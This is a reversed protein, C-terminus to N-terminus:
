GGYWGVREFCEYAIGDENFRIGFYEEPDTGLFGVRSEKTVYYGAYLEGKINYQTRDFEGYKEVIEEATRGIIRSESYKPLTAVAIVTIIAILPIAVALLPAIKNTKMKPRM